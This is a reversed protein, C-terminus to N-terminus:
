AATSDLVAPPGDTYGGDPTPMEMAAASLVLLALLVPKLTRM